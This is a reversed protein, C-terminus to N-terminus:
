EGEGFSSPPPLALRDQKTIGKPEAKAKRRPAPKAKPANHASQIAELNELVYNADSASVEAKLTLLIKSGKVVGTYSQLRADTYGIEAGYLAFWAM